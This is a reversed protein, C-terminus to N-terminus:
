FKKSGAHGPNIQVMEKLSPYCSTKTPAVSKLWSSYTAHNLVPFITITIIIMAGPIILLLLFSDRCNLLWSCSAWFVLFSWDKSFVRIQIDSRYIKVHENNGDKWSQLICTVDKKPHLDEEVLFSSVFGQGKRCKKEALCKRGIIRLFPVTTLDGLTSEKAWSELQIVPM